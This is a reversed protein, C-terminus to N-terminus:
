KGAAAIAKKLYGNQAALLNQAPQKKLGTKLMMIALKASRDAAQLANEAQATDVGTALSIIRLARDHLKTNSVNLDVMLNHYVKGLRIMTGTTLMNLVLKQATGAKMRTSGLLVEPGVVPAITVDCYRALQSDANNAVGITAAGLAKAQQIAALVYPASGSATIGILVDRATLGIDQVLQRGADADDEGGEVATRLATDGGAIFAQVLQPPTGFTPPCESADLVGLRGSTGAGVYVMHGGNKLRDYLLEVGRAIHPLEKEVALPVQQDQQNILRLMESVSAEDVATSAPNVAETTLLSYNGKM